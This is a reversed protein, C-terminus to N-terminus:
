SSSHTMEAPLVNRGTTSLLGDDDDDDSLAVTFSDVMRFIDSRDLAKGDFSLEFSDNGSSPLLLPRGLPTTLQSKPLDSGFCNLDKPKPPGLTSTNSTKNEFLCQLQVDQCESRYFNEILRKVVQYTEDSYLIPVNLKFIKGNRVAKLSDKINIIPKLRGNERRLENLDVPKSFYREMLCKQKQSEDPVMVESTDHIEVYKSVKPKSPSSRQCRGTPSKGGSNGHVRANEYFAHQPLSTLRARAQNNDSRLEKNKYINSQHDDVRGQNQRPRNFNNRPNEPIHGFVPNPVAPGFNNINLNAVEPSYTYSATEDALYNKNNLTRKTPSSIKSTYRPVPVENGQYPLKGLAGNTQTSIM